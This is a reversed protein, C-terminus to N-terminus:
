APLSFVIRTPRRQLSTVTAHDM